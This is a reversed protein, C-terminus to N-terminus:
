DIEVFIVSTNDERRVAICDGIFEADCNSYNLFFCGMCTGEKKSKVCKLKFLGFQFEEGVKFEKKKM